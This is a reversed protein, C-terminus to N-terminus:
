YLWYYLCYYRCYYATTFVTTFFITFDTTCANTFVTTFSLLLSLLLSVQSTSEVAVHEANILAFPHYFDLNEWGEHGSLQIMDQVYMAHHAYIYGM